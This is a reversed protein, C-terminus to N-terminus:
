IWFNVEQATYVWSIVEVRCERRLPGEVNNERHNRTHNSDLFSLNDGADVCKKGVRVCTVSQVHKSYTFVTRVATVDKVSNSNNANMQLSSSKWTHLTATTNCAKQPRYKVNLLLVIVHWTFYREEEQNKNCFRIDRQRCWSCPIRCVSFFLLYQLYVFVRM